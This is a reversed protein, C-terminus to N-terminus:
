SNLLIKEAILKNVPDKIQSVISKLDEYSLNREEKWKELKEVLSLKEKEVTM